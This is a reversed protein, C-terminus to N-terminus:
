TQLVEEGRSWPLAQFKISTFFALSRAESTGHPRSCLLFPSSRTLVLGSLTAFPLGLDGLLLLCRLAKVSLLTGGLPPVQPEARRGAQSDGLSLQQESCWLLLVQASGLNRSFCGRGWDWWLFTVRRVRHIQYLRGLHRRHCRHCAQTTALVRHCRRSVDGCGIPLSSLFPSM